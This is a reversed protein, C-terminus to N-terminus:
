PKKPPPHAHTASGAGGVQVNGMLGGEAHDLIHCHIMWTGPREDFTVLLRVTSKMPVNVTDRWALPRVPEGKEDVVMFFYGHLHYPHDWETDNRVTWLQTQGISAPFPSAKWYPAGNIRFESHGNEQPPLTLVMEVPTAGAAPPPTLTRTVVPLAAKPLAPESSFEVTLLDEVTRYEVSGYGRNYLMARLTVSTGPKGTPAVIVDAREGATILLIDSTTSREQLGGDRGIMTFPQGDLDLYFFRSKAANVIRWRQPAGARARIVPTRKGNVLVYAGERGFVMGASGGSDGPELRGSRDFGIDSLVLTIQDAVGVGDAPDEVLLAGYLGYGAQAASNVHPHYWYLSADRVVFDYTFSEGTKVAPQSVDPVGDMEIPVRVGHWHITTPEDLQNTFHVILRDGVTARILPGPIGGNYTWARVRTGPAIEVEAIRAIIAVEVVKPDPNTDPAENLKVNADWGAPAHGALPQASVVAPVALALLLSAISFIRGSM